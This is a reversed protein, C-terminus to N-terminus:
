HFADQSVEFVNEQVDLTDKRKILVFIPLDKIKSMWGAVVYNLFWTNFRHVWPFFGVLHMYKWANHVGSVSGDDKGAEVIGKPKSFTLM